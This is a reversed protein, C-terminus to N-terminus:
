VTRWKFESRKRKKEFDRETALGERILYSKSFKKYDRRFIQDIKDEALGEDWDSWGFERLVQVIEEKRLGFHKMECVAAVRVMNPPEPSLLSRFIGPNLIQEVLELLPSDYEYGVLEGETELSVIIANRFEIKTPKAFEDISKLSGEPKTPQHTSKQHQLVREESM